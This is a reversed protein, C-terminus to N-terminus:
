YGFDVMAKGATVLHFVQTNTLAAKTAVIGTKFM